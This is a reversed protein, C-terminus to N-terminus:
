PTDEETNPFEKLHVAAALHRDMEQLNDIADDYHGAAPDPGIKEIQGIVIDQWRRLDKLPKGSLYVVTQNVQGPSMDKLRRPIPFPPVRMQGDEVAFWDGFVIREGSYIITIISRGPGDTLAKM